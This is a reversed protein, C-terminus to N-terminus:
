PAVAVPTGRRRMSDAGAELVKVVQLGHAGNAATPDRRSVASIFQLCQGALADGRDIPIAQGPDRPRERPPSLTLPEPGLEDVVLSRQTGVITFTRQRALAHRAVHIHALRGSAFQLTAWVVTEEVEAPEGRGVATVQEPVEGFFHLALSVDHPALTWWAGGPSRAAGTALRSSELWLPEGIAGAAVMERARRVAPDHLLLHGVSLVRGGAKALASLEAAHAVTMAMP